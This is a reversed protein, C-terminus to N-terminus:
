VFFRNERRVWCVHRRIPSQLPLMCHLLVNSWEERGGGVEVGGGKFRGEGSRGEVAWRWEEGGVVVEM